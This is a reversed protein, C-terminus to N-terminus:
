KMPAQPNVPYPPPGGQYVITTRVKPKSCAKCVCVCLVIIGIVVVLPIIIAVALVWKAMKTGEEVGYSFKEVKKEEKIEVRTRREYGGWPDNQIWDSADIRRVPANDSASLVQRPKDDEGVLEPLKAARTLLVAGSLCTTVIAVIAFRAPVTM